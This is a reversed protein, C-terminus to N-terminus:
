CLMCDSRHGEVQTHPPVTNPIHNGIKIYPKLLTSLTLCRVWLLYQDVGVSNEPVPTKTLAMLFKSTIDTQAGAEMHQTDPNLGILAVTLRVQHSIQAEAAQQHAGRSDDRGKVQVPLVKKQQVSPCSLLVAGVMM